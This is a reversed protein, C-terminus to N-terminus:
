ASRLRDAKDEISAMLEDFAKEFAALGEDLLQETVLEFDIGLVDLRALDARAQDVGQEVTPAVHGHDMFAEMTVPPMTNVTDAGILTDVYLTDPYAANKASTSAWLPRQVRAGCTALRQWRPGSFLQQFRAYAVKANAVALKGQLEPAGNKALLPDVLSDVRSVFFSAVSATLAVDGGCAARKELGAIFAEAADEYQKLSFILTVNVNIGEGILTKIAPIGAPTAPIKIMVNSRNLTTFLRRAEAVSGATDHALKPSVELSVYGDRGKTREWVPLLVDAARAIDELVLAEYIQDTTRGDGVITQLAEDYDTSGAIAKNFIAPNSTVGRAGKDLLAQLEGSIIFSRRIFDIWVSQGLEALEHLKTM